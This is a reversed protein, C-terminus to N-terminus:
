IVIGMKLDRWEEGGGHLNLVSHFSNKKDLENKMQEDDAVCKSHM